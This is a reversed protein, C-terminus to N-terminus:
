GEASATVALERSRRVLELLQPKPTLKVVEERWPLGAARAREVAERLLAVAEEGTLSFAEVGGSATLLELRPASGEEPVLLCRSRLDMGQEASLVIAALGLAALAVRAAADRAATSPAGDPPFRLRRLAPLSLVSTQLAYRFTVGGHHPQRRDNKLSPTVNGHNIESPKGDKGVKVPKSREKRASKEDLTWTDGTTGPEAQYVPGAGLQIGLPDVRSSPRVGAEADVAVVESVLARAFKTGLGGRPGASDWMGFLLATPCLGFLGTAGAATATDLVKGEASQRFGVKGVLSDRLIADALRHPADLSTVNGVEPMGAAAFDVELVPLPIRGARWADLLAGELRNAQSQVSDMLACPVRAGDMMRNELAYEGGEYTPPFVKDGKGGAPQLRAVRRLAADEACARTLRELTLKQSM